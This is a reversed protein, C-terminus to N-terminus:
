LKTFRPQQVNNIAVEELFMALPRIWQVGYGSTDEYLGTYAVYLKLEESHRFIGVVQYHKGSYHEFLDGITIRQLLVQEEHNIGWIKASLCRSQAQMNM